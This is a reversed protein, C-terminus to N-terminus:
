RYVKNDANRPKRKDLETKTSQRKCEKEEEKAMITTAFSLILLCQHESIHVTTKILVCLSYSNILIRKM